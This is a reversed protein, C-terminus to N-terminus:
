RDDRIEIGGLWAKATIHLTPAGDHVDSSEGIRTDVGGAFGHREVEVRWGAPLTVDVGGMCARIDLTAGDPDLTAERLDIEIGGMVALASGARFAEAESVLERGGGIAALRFVDSSEDGRSIRRGVLQGAASVIVLLALGRLVKSGLLRLPPTM